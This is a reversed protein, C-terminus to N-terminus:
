LCITVPVFTDPERWDGWQNEKSRDGTMLFPSANDDTIWHKAESYVSVNNLGNNCNHKNECRLNSATLNSAQNTQQIKYCCFLIHIVIWVLNTKCVFKTDQTKYRISAVSNDM